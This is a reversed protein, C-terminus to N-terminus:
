FRMCIILLTVPCLTALIWVISRLTQLNALYCLGYVLRLVLYAAGLVIVFFDPVILYDAMLVAAIFLPLGEFSNQQAANARAALGQARALFERPNGHVKPHYGSSIRAIVTFLYPLLCAALIIMIIINLSHM